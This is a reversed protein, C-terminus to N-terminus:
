PARSHCRTCAGCSFRPCCAMHSSLPVRPELDRALQAGVEVAVAAALADQHQEYDPNYSCGAPEVDVAAMQPRNQEGLHTPRTALRDEDPLYDPM